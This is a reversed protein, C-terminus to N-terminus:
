GSSGLLAAPSPLSSLQAGLFNSTNNLQAVLTDLALFQSRLRTEVAQLHFELRERQSTIGKISENLGDDRVDLLGDAKLYEDLVADMRVAVGNFEDAFLTGIDEFNDRVAADLKEETVELTGELSVQLGLDRLSGLTGMVTKNFERNLRDLLTPVLSDGQLAGATQTEVDYSTLAQATVILGNYASVFDDVLARTQEQDLGISLTATSGPDASVLEISLGDIAASVVNTPSFHTFSDIRIEADLAAQTETLNTISNEPDYVLADLGGDGGTATVTITRSKGTLSGSLILHAGDDANVISATVGPNGDAANIADRIDALTAKASDTIEVTFSGGDPSAPDLSIDLTGTGVYTDADAFAGSALKQGQALSVVEIEYQGPAVNSDATVTFIEENSSSVTRAGFEGLDRLPELTTRMQDLAARFSGLGSLEAQFTAERRSLRQEAPQGEFLVLQSVLTEIDLGSGIGPSTISPM